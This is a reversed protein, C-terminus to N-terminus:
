KVLLKIYIYFFKVLVIHIFDLVYNILAKSISFRSHFGFLYIMLLTYQFNLVIFRKYGRHWYLKLEQGEELDLSYKMDSWGKGFVYKTNDNVRKLAVTYDDEERADYVNVEKGTKLDEDAVSDM